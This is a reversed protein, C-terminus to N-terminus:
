SPEAPWSRGLAVGGGEWCVGASGVENDVQEKLSAFSVGLLDLQDRGRWRIDQLPSQPPPLTATM